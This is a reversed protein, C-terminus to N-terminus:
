DEMCGDKYMYKMCIGRKWGEMIGKRYIEDM